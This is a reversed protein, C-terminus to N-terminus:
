HIVQVTSYSVMKTKEIEVLVLDKKRQILKSANITKLNIRKHFSFFAFSVTLVLTILMWISLAIALHKDTNSWGSPHWSFNTPTTGNNTLNNAESSSFNYVDRFSNSANIKTKNQLERFIVDHHQMKAVETDKPFAVLFNHYKSKNSREINGPLLFRSSSTSRM